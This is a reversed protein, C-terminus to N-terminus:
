RRHSESKVPSLAGAPCWQRAEVRGKRNGTPIAFAVLGLWTGDTARAWAYLLGPVAGAVDLGEAKVRMSVADKRFPGHTPIAAGLDVLVPTPPDVVQRLPSALEGTWYEFM